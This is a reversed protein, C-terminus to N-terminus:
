SKMIYCLAYFPPRKEQNATGSWSSGTHGHATGSGSTESQRTTSDSVTASVWYDSGGWIELSTYYDVTTHTHKPIEATTLAHGAITTGATTVTNAGGTEAKM